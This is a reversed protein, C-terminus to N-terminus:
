FRRNWLHCSPASFGRREVCKADFQNVWGSLDNFNRLLLDAETANNYLPAVQENIALADKDVAYIAVVEIAM